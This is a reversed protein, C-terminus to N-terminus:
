CRESAQGTASDKAWGLHRETAKAQDMATAMESGKVSGKVSGMVM